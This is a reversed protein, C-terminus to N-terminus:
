EESNLHLDPFGARRWGDTFLAPKPVISLTQSLTPFVQFALWDCGKNKTERMVVKMMSDIHAQIPAAVLVYLSGRPIGWRKECLGHDVISQLGLFKMLFSTTNFNTSDARNRHEYEFILFRWEDNDYKIARFGDPRYNFSHEHTHGTDFKKKISVKINFPAPDKAIFNPHNIIEEPYVMRAGGTQRIGIDLSALTGNVGVEHPFERGNGELPARTGIVDAARDALTFWQWGNLGIYSKQSRGHHDNAYLNLYRNPEAALEKLRKRTDIVNKELLGAIFPASLTRYHTLEIFKALDNGTPRDICIPQGTKNLVPGYEWRDQRQRM